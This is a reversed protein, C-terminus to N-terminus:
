DDLRLGLNLAIQRLLDLRSFQNVPKDPNEIPWRLTLCLPKHALRQALLRFVEWLAPQRGERAAGMDAPHDAKL